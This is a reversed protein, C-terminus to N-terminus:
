ILLEKLKELKNEKELIRNNFEVKLDEIIGIEKSITDLLEKISLEKIRLHIGDDNSAISSLEVLRDTPKSMLHFAEDSKIKFFVRSKNTEEIYKKAYNIAEDLECRIIESIEIIDGIIILKFIRKM